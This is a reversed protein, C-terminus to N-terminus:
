CESTYCFLSIECFIPTNDKHRFNLESIFKHLGINIENEVLPYEKVILLYAKIIHQVYLYTRIAYWYLLYNINGTAVM